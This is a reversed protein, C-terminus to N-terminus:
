HLSATLAALAARCRTDGIAGGGGLGFAAVSGLGAWIEGKTELFKWSFFFFIIIWVPPSETVAAEGADGM